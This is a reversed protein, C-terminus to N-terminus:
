ELLDLLASDAWHADDLVIVHPSRGAQDELFKRAAWLTDEREGSGIGIRCADSLQQSILSRRPQNEILEHIAERSTDGPLQKVVEALPWHPAGQNHPLRPGVVGVATNRLGALLEDALRTKGTGVAGIVSVLHCRRQERAERLAQQLHALELERGVFPVDT